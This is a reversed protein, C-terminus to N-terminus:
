TDNTYRSIKNGRKGKTPSHKNTAAAAKKSTASTPMYKRAALKKKTKTRTVSKNVITKTEIEYESSVIEVEEPSVIKRHRTRSSNGKDSDVNVYDQMEDDDDKPKRKRDNKQIKTKTKPYPDYESSSSCESPSECSSPSSWGNLWKTTRKAREHSSSTDSSTDSIQSRESQKGRSERTNATRLQAKLKKEKLKFEQKAIELQRQMEMVQGRKIKIEYQEQELKARQIQKPTKKNVSKIEVVERKKALSKHGTKMHEKILWPTSASYSCYLCLNIKKDTHHHSHRKMAAEDKTNFDCADCKFGDCDNVVPYTDTLLRGHDFKENNTLQWNRPASFSCKLCRYKTRNTHM